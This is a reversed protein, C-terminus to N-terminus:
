RHQEPLWGVVHDNQGALLLVCRDDCAVLLLRRRSDLTLTEVVALRGQNPKRALGAMRALRGGLAIVALVACLAAAAPLFSSLTM